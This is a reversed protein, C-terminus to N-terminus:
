LSVSLSVGGSVDAAGKSLGASGFGTLRLRDAVPLSVAGVIEHSDKVFRSAAQSYDYSVVATVRNQFRYSAGVSTSVGDHLDWGPVDGFKRYSVAVFPALPGMRKSLEAGVSYDTKGTSVGSADSATPLKVRGILELDLGSARDLPVAYAAGLTLDGWGKRMRQGMPITPAVILPTAGIGTFVTGDSKIRMWPLSATLRFDGIAYRANLLAAQITTETPAGYDGSWRSYGGSLSLNSLASPAAEEAAASGAVAIIALGVAAATLNRM